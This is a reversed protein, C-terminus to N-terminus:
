HQTAAPAPLAETVASRATKSATRGSRTAPPWCCGLPARAPLARLRSARSQGPQTHYLHLYPLTRWDSNRNGRRLMCRGWGGVWVQATWPRCSRAMIQTIQRGSLQLPPGSAGQGGTTTAWVCASRAPPLFARPDDAATTTSCQEECQGCANGTGTCGVRKAAGSRGGGPLSALARGERFVKSLGARRRDGTKSTLLERSGRSDRCAGAAAPSICLPRVRRAPWRALLGIRLLRRVDSTTGRAILVVLLHALPSRLAAGPRLPWRLSGTCAPHSNNLLRQRV